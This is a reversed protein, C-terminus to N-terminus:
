SLWVGNDLVVSDDCGLLENMWRESSLDVGADVTDIDTKGASNQWSTPSIAGHILAYCKASNSGKSGVDEGGESM